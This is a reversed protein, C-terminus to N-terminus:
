ACAAEPVHDRTDFEVLAMRRAAIAAQTRNTVGLIALIRSVHQKVTIEALGLRLAIEKNPHGKGILMLVERQRETLSLMPLNTPETDAPADRTIIEPKVLRERLARRLTNVIIQPPM